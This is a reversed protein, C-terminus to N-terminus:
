SVAGRIETVGFWQRSESGSKSGPGRAKAWIQSQRSAM